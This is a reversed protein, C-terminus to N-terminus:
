FKFDVGLELADFKFNGLGFRAVGAVSPSFFYRAGAQGWTWLGSEKLSNGQPSSSFFGIVLGVFPVFKGSEIQNFNFNAQGGAFLNSFKEREDLTYNSFRLIAGLGFTGPGAQSIENEFNFGFTPSSKSAWFGLTGGMLNDKERLQGFSSAAICMLFIVTFIKTKMKTM